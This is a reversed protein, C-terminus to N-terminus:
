KVISKLVPIPGRNSNKNCAEYSGACVMRENKIKEILEPAVFMGGSVSDLNKDTMKNKSNKKVKKDKKM